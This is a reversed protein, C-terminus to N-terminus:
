ALRRTVGAGRLPVQPPRPPPPRPRRRDRLHPRRRSACPPSWTPATASGCRTPSAPPSPTTACASTAPSPACPAGVARRRAGLHRRRRRRRRRHPEPEGPHPPRPPRRHQCANMPAGRYPALLESVMPPCRANARRDGAALPARALPRRAAPHGPPDPGARRRRCQRLRRRLRDRHRQRHPRAEALPTGRRVLRAPHGAGDLLYTDATSPRPPSEDRRLPPRRRHEAGPAPAASLAHGPPWADLFWSWSQTILALGPAAELHLRSTIILSAILTDEATGDVRLHAKAEALTVPEVAPGSTLVLPM